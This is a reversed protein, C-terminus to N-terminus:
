VKERPLVHFYIDRLTHRERHVEQIQANLSVLEAVVRSIDDERPVSFRIENKATGTDATYYDRNKMADALKQPLEKLKVTFRNEKWLNRILERLNGTILIKGKFIVAISDCLFEAEELRHSCLFITRKREEVFKKLYQLLEESAEPDLGATPEDLFLIEPDHILERAISLKQKMGKSFKGVLDKRRDSLGFMDLLFGIRSRLEDGRIGYLMGWTELNEEATLKEYLNTDTQVGCKARIFDSEKQIDRGLVKATGATPELLGNLLRVTTTKGAGNPGLFGFVSGEDVRINIGDVATIAGFNKSLGSTEIATQM